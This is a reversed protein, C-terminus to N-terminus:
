SRQRSGVAVVAAAALLGALAAIGLSRATGRSPRSAPSAAQVQSLVLRQAPPIGATKQETDVYSVLVTSLAEACTRTRAPDSGTCTLRLLLDNPLALASLHGRVSAVPVALRVAVPVAIRDTPVLGTYKLRVRSLKELVGGDRSEAVAQPEDIAVLSTSAFPGSTRHAAIGGLGAVLVGIVIALLLVLPSPRRLPSM